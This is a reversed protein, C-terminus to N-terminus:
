VMLDRYKQQSMLFGRLCGLPSLGEIEIKPVEDLPDERGGVLRPAAIKPKVMFLSIPM